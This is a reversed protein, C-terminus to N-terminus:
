NIFHERVKSLLVNKVIPKSVYDNCGVELAKVRDGTLGYATQAIIVIDKNFKRIKQTAEFGNMIPMKIDMLILDIDPNDKCIKIAEAGNSAEYITHSEAMIIKLFDMSVKDDEVLLVKLNKIIDNADINTLSIKDDQNGNDKLIYPITFYFISGKGVESEVWITGNMMEVYAKSIALGLGAGQYAQRDEIDAQIFREFIAGQRDNPIGIGTDKVYFILYDDKKTYGLEISGNSTFKIANKVLNTLIAYIKERDIIINAEGKPLPAKYDLKIQKQQAELKFFAHIYEISKNIDTESTSLNVLNSEIRSIDVIDNIINLMRAGGKQIIDIYKIQKDGTLNPDKLLEAFGLIGNMPTRIEHSMNAMFATKLKDSELARICADELESTRKKVLKELQNKHAILENNKTDIEKKQAALLKNKRKIKRRTYLGYFLIILITALIVYLLKKQIINKDITLKNITNKQKLKEIEIDKQFTQYQISFQAIQNQAKQSTISAKLMSYRQFYKLAELYNGNISDIKSLYTFCDLAIESYSEQLAEKLSSSFTAKAKKLENKQLYLKASLVQNEVTLKKDEIKAAYSLSKKLFDLARNFHKQKLSIEGLYRFCNATGYNDQNKLYFDLGKKLRYEASDLENRLLNIIGINCIAYFYLEENDNENKIADLGYGYSEIAKDFEELKEYTIGINNYSHFLQTPSNSSKAIELSKLNYELALNYYERHNFLLALNNYVKGLNITDNNKSFINLSKEYFIYSSDYNSSIHYSMAIYNYAKGQGTLYNISKSLALTNNAIKRTESPNTRFKSFALKNLSDIEFHSVNIPKSINREKAEDVQASVNTFLILIVAICSFYKCGIHKKNRM